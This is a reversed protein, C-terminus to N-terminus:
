GDRRADAETIERIPKCPNGVAIMNSPIDKTVVSGGGIVAGDGITVGPMVKVGGGFWVNNGVTIPKAYELGKNRRDADLPHGATYFGCDPAVFVNDGFTVKAGDLIVLNHNAYFNEGIEINFGYDCYFPGTIEFQNGTKGLLQRIIGQRKAEESPRAHNFDYCLEKADARADILEQDYNADYILGAIMKNKETTM